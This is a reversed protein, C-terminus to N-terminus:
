MGAFFAGATNFIMWWIILRRVEAPEAAVIADVVWGIFLPSVFEGVMGLINLAFGAIMLCKFQGIYGFLLEKAKANAEEAKKAKEKAQHEKTPREKTRKKDGKERVGEKTSLEKAHKEQAKAKDSGDKLTIAGINGATQMVSGDLPRGSVVTRLWRGAGDNAQAVVAM